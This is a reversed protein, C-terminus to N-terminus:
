VPVNTIIAALLLFFIFRKNDIDLFELWTGNVTALTEVAHEKENFAIEKKANKDWLHATYEKKM